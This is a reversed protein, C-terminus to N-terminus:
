KLAEILKLAKKHEKVNHVRIISAGNQIAIINSTLTGALRQDVTSNTLQGIFSKNSTGILIPYGLSKFKQINKIIEINHNITKGFGIGPDIIINTVNKEKAHEIQKKLFDIIDSIVNTYLPNDQMTEPTGQSHMLILTKDTKGVSDFLKSDKIGGSIDNIYDAGNELALEAIQHKTTDISLPTDFEKKYISLIPRLRELEEKESLPTAGPRTSEAGIDIIDAGDTILKEIQKLASPTDYYLGGDSFSDPTINIIGMIKPKSLSRTM